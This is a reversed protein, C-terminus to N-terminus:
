ASTMVLVFDWLQLNGSSSAYRAADIVKTLIEPSVPDKRFQRCAWRMFIAQDVSMLTGLMAPLSEASRRLRRPLPPLESM